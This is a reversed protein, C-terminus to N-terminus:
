FLAVTLSDRETSELFSRGQAFWVPQEKCFLSLLLDSEANKLFSCCSHNAQSKSKREWFVLSKSLFLQVTTKVMNKGAIWQKEGKKHGIAIGEWLEKCFLSRTIRERWERFFLLIPIQEKSFILYSKQECFFSFIQSESSFGFLLNGVRTIHM